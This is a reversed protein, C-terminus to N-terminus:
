GFSFVPGYFLAQYTGAYQDSASHCYRSSYQYAPTDQDRSAYEHEHPDAGFYAGTATNACLQFAGPECGVFRNDFFLICCGATEHENNEQAIVPAGSKRQASFIRKRIGAGTWTVWVPQRPIKAV